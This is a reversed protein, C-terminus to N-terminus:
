KSLKSEAEILREIMWEIGKLYGRLKEANGLDYTYNNNYHLLKKKRHEERAKDALQLIVPLEVRSVISECLEKIQEFTQKLTIKGEEKEQLIGALKLQEEEGIIEKM